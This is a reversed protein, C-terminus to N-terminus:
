ERDDWEIDVLHSLLEDLTFKNNMGTELTTQFAKAMGNLRMEKLKAITAQNNNM